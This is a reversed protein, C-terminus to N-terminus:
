AIRRGERWWTTAYGSEGLRQVLQGGLEADDEVILIHKAM